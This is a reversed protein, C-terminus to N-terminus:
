EPTGRYPGRTIGYRKIRGVAVKVMYRVQAVERNHDLDNQSPGGSKDSGLGMKIPMMIRARPLLKEIDIYGKDVVMNPRTWEPLDNHLMIKTLWGFKPLNERLLRFDYISGPVAPSKGTHLEGPDM